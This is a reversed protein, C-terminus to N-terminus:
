GEIDRKNYGLVGLYTLAIGLVALIILTLLNIDDMPVKPVHGFPSFNKMWDSFDFLEGFYIVIFSYLLMVWSVITIKPIWGILFTTLGILVLLAPLYVIGAKFITSFAIPDEMVSASAVWLGLVSMFLGVISMVVSIGLYSHIIESRSVARVLLHETRNKKEEGKIKLIIMLSPITSIIGMVSLIVSLFQEAFSFDEGPPLIQQIMENDSFFAELDGFISGYMAGLIFLGIIWTIIATRQLRIGLGLTSQLFSSAHKRGPKAPILGAGLDRISSLYFGLAGLLVGAGLTVFVPWWYNNVYVETRLILGLPSALSLAESSVDGIARMVYSIGLVGLSLGITGRPNSSLQAFLITLGTFFIGTAGLAAGYLLSAKLGMSEIELAYLGFGVILALVINSVISLITAASLNSLRGVPLSRIMEIRGEEEDSRTHRTILFISMLGVGMATFLLMQHGTMSGITYNDLGYGPGVMATMAPNKMTEAIASIAQDTPYLEVFAPPVVLTFIALMIIWVPLKIRDRRLMSKVLIMTNNYLKGSM